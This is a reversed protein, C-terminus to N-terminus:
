NTLFPDTQSDKVKVTRIIPLNGTPLNDTVLKLEAFLKGVNRSFVGTMM